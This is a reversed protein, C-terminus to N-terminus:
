EGIQGGKLLNELLVRTGHQDTWRRVYDLDLREGRVGIVGIVDDIDKRRKWRLKTIIVDEATPVFIPRGEITEQVRRQFREKDHPDDGLVFLEVMFPSHRHRFRYATTGTISDFVLQSDLTFDGGLAAAVGTIPRDGLQIVIDADKTSRPIGYVNSSFSGVVMFPIAQADLVDVVRHVLDAANTM